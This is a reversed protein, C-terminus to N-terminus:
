RRVARPDRPLADRTGRLRQRPARPWGWSARRRRAGPGSVWWAAAVLVGTTVLFLLLRLRGLSRAPDTTVHRITPRGPKRITHAPRVESAPPEHDYYSLPLAPRAYAWMQIDQAM